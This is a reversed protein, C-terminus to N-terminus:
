GFQAIHTSLVSIFENIGRHLLVAKVLIKVFSARLLNISIEYVQNKGFSIASMYFMFFIESIGNLLTHSESCLNGCFNFSSLLM